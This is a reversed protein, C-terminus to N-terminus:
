TSRHLIPDASASGNISPGAGWGGAYKPFSSSCATARDCSSQGCCACARRWV